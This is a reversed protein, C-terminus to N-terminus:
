AYSNNSFLCECKLTMHFAISGLGVIIYGIFAVVFVPPHQYRICDRIGRFGLYLFMLNTMTNVFEACYKTVNYDQATLGRIAQRTCYGATNRRM